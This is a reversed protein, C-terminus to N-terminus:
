IHLHLNNIIDQINRKRVHLHYNEIGYLCTKCSYIHFANINIEIAVIFYVHIYCIESVRMECGVVMPHSMNQFTQFHKTQKVHAFGRLVIITNEFSLFFQRFKKADRCQSLPYITSKKRRVLKAEGFM